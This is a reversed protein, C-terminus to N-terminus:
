TKNIKEVEKLLEENPVLPEKPQIVKKYRVIGNKDVIFYSRQALKRDANYVGWAQAAAGNPNADSL